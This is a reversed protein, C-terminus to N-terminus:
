FCGVGTNCVANATSCDRIKGIERSSVLMCPNLQAQEVAAAESTKAFPREYPAVSKKPTRHLPVLYLYRVQLAVKIVSSGRKERGLGRKGGTGLFIM